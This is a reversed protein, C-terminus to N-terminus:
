SSLQTVADFNSSQINGKTFKRIYFLNSRSFGKMEPFEARLDKALQEVYNNRGEFLAQQRAIRQGLMWYTQILTTNVALAAKHHGQWILAKVEQLFAVYVQESNKITM